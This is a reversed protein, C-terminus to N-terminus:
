EKYKYIEIYYIIASVLLALIFVIMVFCNFSWDYGLAYAVSISNIYAFILLIVAKFTRMLRVEARYINKSNNETPKIPYNFKRYLKEYVSFLVYLIAAIATTHYIFSLNGWGDIECYFNYHVPIPTDKDLKLALFLPIFCLVLATISAAELICDIKNRKLPGPASM